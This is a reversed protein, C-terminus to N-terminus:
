GIKEQGEAENGPIDKAVVKITTGELKKNIVRAKYVWKSSDIRHPIADDEELLKGSSSFISIRVEAVRFDDTATITIISGINGNYQSYDIHEVVPPNLFDSLAIHYATRSSGARQQYEQKLVSDKLASQAYAVADTFLERRKKQDKSPKKRSQVPMKTMITNDGHKKFVVQGGLNGRAGVVLMNDSIKAM